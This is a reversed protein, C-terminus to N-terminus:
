FHYSLKVRVGRGDQELANQWNTDAGPHAYRKDFLNRPDLALELGPALALLMARRSGKRQAANKKNTNIM